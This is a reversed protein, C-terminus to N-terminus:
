AFLDDFAAVKAADESDYTRIGFSEDIRYGWRGSRRQFTVVNHGEVNLFSNGRASTRWKRSLWRARRISRNRLAQERRKAGEYDGTMKGACICGVELPAELNPHVVIHVYRISEKGCMECTATADELEEVDVCTWGKHPIGPQDWLYGSASM